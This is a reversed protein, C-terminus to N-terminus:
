QGAWEGGVMINHWGHGVERRGEAGWVGLIFLKWCRREIMANCHDM